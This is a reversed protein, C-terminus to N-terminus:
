KAAFRWRKMATIIEFALSELLDGCSSATFNPWRWKVGGRIGHAQSGGAASLRPRHEQGSHGGPAPADGPRGRHRGNQVWVKDGVLDVHPWRAMSESSIAGASRSGCIIIMPATLSRRIHFRISPTASWLM